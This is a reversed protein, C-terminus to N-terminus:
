DVLVGNVVGDQGPRSTIRVNGIETKVISGKTVINMRAHHRHEPSKVVTEAKVRKVGEKTAVNVYLVKRVKVKKNGGKTRVIKREEKENKELNVIRTATFPRGVFRLRKDSHKKRKGGSGSRKTKSPGHYQEMDM